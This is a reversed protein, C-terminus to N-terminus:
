THSGCTAQSAPVSPCPGCALVVRRALDIPLDKLWSTCPGRTYRNHSKDDSPLSVNADTFLRRPIATAVGTKYWLERTLTKPNSGTPPAVNFCAVVADVRIHLHPCCSKNRLRESVHGYSSPTPLPTSQARFQGTRAARQFWASFACSAPLLALHMARCLGDPVIGGITRGMPLLDPISNLATMRITSNGLIPPM